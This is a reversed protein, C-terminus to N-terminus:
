RWHGRVAFGALFGVLLAFTTACTAVLCGLGTNPEQRASLARQPAPLDGPETTGPHNLPPPEQGLPVTYPPHCEACDQLGHPWCRNIPAPGTM